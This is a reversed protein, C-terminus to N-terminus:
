QVVYISFYQKLCPGDEPLNLTQKVQRRLSAEKRPSLKGGSAAKAFKWNTELTIKAMLNSDLMTFTVPAFDPALTFTSPVTLRTKDSSRFGVLLHKYSARTFSALEQERFLGNDGEPDCISPVLYLTTEPSFANEPEIELIDLETILVVDKVFKFSGRNMSLFRSTPWGMLTFLAELGGVSAMCDVITEIGHHQCYAIINDVDAPRLLLPFAYPVATIPSAPSVPLANIDFVPRDGCVHILFSQSFTAFGAVQQKLLSDVRDPDTGNRTASERMRERRSFLDMAYPTPLFPTTFYSKDVVLYGTQLFLIKQM